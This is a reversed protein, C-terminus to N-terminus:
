QFEVPPTLRGDGAGAGPYGWCTIKRDATMACSHYNGVSVQVFAGAPPRSQGCDPDVCADGNKTGAGWCAVTGDTRVGCSHNVGVSVSSFAGQPPAAQGFNYGEDSCTAASDDDAKGAGWCSVAGSEDLACTSYFSSSLSVFAGAPPMLQGAAPIGQCPTNGGSGWCVISGNGGRIGCAFHFGVSVQALTEGSPVNLMDAYESVCFAQDQDDTGCVTGRGVSLTHIKGSPVIDAIGSAAGGSPADFCAVSHDARIGCISDTSGHLEIFSGVPIPWATPSYGWCQIGGANDLACNGRSSSAIAFAGVPTAIGTAGGDGPSAGADASTVGASGGAGSISGAASTGAQSSSEGAAAHGDDGDSSSGCAAVTVAAVSATVYCLLMACSHTKV